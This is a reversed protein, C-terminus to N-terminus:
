RNGSGLSFAMQTQLVIFGRPNKIVRKQRKKRSWRRCQGFIVAGHVEERQAPDLVVIGLPNPLWDSCLVRKINSIPAAPAIFFTIIIFYGVHIMRTLTLLFWVLTALSKKLYFITGMIKTSAWLSTSLCTEGSFKLFYLGRQHWKWCILIMNLQFNEQIVQNNCKKLWETLATAEQDRNVNKIITNIKIRPIFPQDHYGISDRFILLDVNM